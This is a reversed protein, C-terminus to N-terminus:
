ILFRAFMFILTVINIGFATNYLIKNDLKLQNTIKPIFLPLFIIIPIFYRGQIGQITPNGVSFFQATCQVYIATGILGIIIISIFGIFIKQSIKLNNKSSDNYLALVVLVIYIFSILSPMELQSHYMTTGVFLCEIYKVFNISFTRIFIIFYEIINSLVFAKQLDSQDYAIDFVGNLFNMWILSVICSIIITVIVFTNKEKKGNKFKKYDILLLLFVVPVYVIKCLSIIVSLLLLIIQSKKTVGEKNFIKNLILAVLLLFISNTFADASLTTACQLMNPSLLILLYFLKTKPVLKLSFYGIIIYFILNFIRGLIGILYPNLNLVKGIYFGILQPFYQVPSYLATNSYSDTWLKGYQAKDESNLKVNMMDKIHGYKITTNNGSGVIFTEKLSTAMESGVYKETPTILTGETIEYIRYYHNHEDSGTFLPSIIIFFIGLISATIIFVKPVNDDNISKIKKNFALLLLILLIFLFLFIFYYKKGFYLNELLKYKIDFLGILFFITISLLLTLMYNNKKIFEIFKNKM